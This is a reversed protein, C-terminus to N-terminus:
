ESLLNRFRHARLARLARQEIQRVRERSVGFEDSLQDLTRPEEGNLGFRRNLVEADRPPLAALCSRLADSRLRRDVIDTVDADHEEALLDGLRAGDGDDGLPLDLSVPQRDLDLYQRVKDVPHGCALAVEQDSPRRGLRSELEHFHKRVTTVSEAVRVPVRVLRSSEALSRTISQRIWWTAYTSFKFGKTYDYKKVARDLGLNGDQILDMFPVGLGLYRKAVSVVLRLNARVFRDHAREGEHVLQRLLPADDADHSGQLRERAILGIEITRALEVEEEASLLDVRAINRLYEGVIDSPAGASRGVVQVTSM